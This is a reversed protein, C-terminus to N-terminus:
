LKYEKLGWKDWNWCDVPAMGRHHRQKQYLNCLSFALSTPPGIMYLLITLLLRSVIDKRISQNIALTSVRRVFFIFTYFCSLLMCPSTPYRSYFIPHRQLYLLSVSSLFHLAGSAFYWDLHVSAWNKSKIPVFTELTKRRAIWLWM